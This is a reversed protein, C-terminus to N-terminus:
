AKGTYEGKTNRAVFAAGNPVECSNGRRTIPEGNVEWKTYLHHNPPLLEIISTTEGAVISFIAVGDETTDITPAAPSQVAEVSIVAVSSIVTEEPLNVKPLSDAEVGIEELKATDYLLGKVSVLLEGTRPHTWGM